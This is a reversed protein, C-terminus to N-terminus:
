PLQITKVLERDFLAKKNGSRDRKIKMGKYLYIDAKARPLDTTKLYEYIKFEVEELTLAEVVAVMNTTRKVFAKYNVMFNDM